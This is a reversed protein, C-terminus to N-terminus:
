VVEPLDMFLKYEHLYYVYSYLSRVDHHEIVYLVSITQSMNYPM